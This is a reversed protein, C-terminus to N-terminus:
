KTFLKGFLGGSQKNEKASENAEGDGIQSLINDVMSKFGKSVDSNPYDVVVLKNYNTAQSVINDNKPIHGLFDYKFRKSIEDAPISMKDYKNVILKIREKAENDDMIEELTEITLKTNKLSVLQASSVIAIIDASDVAAMTSPHFGQMSDVIIYDFLRKGISIAKQLVAPQIIDAYQPKKPAALVWFGAEHEVLHAELADQDIDRMDNLDAITRNPKLNGLYSIDGFQLDYDLLLVRGGETQSLRNTLEAALNLATTTKGTGGKSSILSIVKGQKDTSSFDYKRSTSVLEIASSALREEFDEFAVFDRAGVKMAERLDKPEEFLSTIIVTTSPFESVILRCYELGDMNKEKSSKIDKSIIVLEPHHTRVAELLKSGDKAEGIVNFNKNNAILTQLKDKVESHVEGIITSIPRM